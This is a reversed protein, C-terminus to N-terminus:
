EIDALYSAVRPDKAVRNMHEMLQPAVRSTLDTPVHDLFGANLSRVWSFVKLDAITLRKDAFHEGGAADLRQSFFNLYQTFTGNVLEERAAKMEDGELGFTKVLANSTDEIAEMLEDCLFAQWPDEPYLGTLRGAYRTMANCQTYVVGDVEMTPVAKLPLDERMQRFEDISIRHDEFDVGGIALAMRVPEGRGGSFDFYTLKIKSM